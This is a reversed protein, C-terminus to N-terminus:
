EFDLQYLGSSLFVKFVSFKGLLHCKFTGPLEVVTTVMAIKMSTSWVVPTHSYPM